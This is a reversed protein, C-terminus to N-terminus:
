MQISELRNKIPSPIRNELNDKKKKNKGNHNLIPVLTSSMMSDNLSTNHMSSDNMRSQNQISTKLNGFYSLKRTLDSKLSYDVSRM